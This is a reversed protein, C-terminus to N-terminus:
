YCSQIGVSLTTYLLVLGDASVLPSTFCIVSGLAVIAASPQISPGVEVAVYDSISPNLEDWVQRYRLVHVICAHFLCAFRREIVKFLMFISLTLSCTM